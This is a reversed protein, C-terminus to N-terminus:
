AKATSVRVGLRQLLSPPTQRSPAADLTRLAACAATVLLVCHHTLPQSQPKRSLVCQPLLQSDLCGDASPGFTPSLCQPLSSTLAGAARHAAPARNVAPSPATSAEGRQQGHGDGNATLEQVAAALLQGCRAVGSDLEAREEVVGMAGLAEPDFQAAAGGELSRRATEERPPAQVMFQLQKRAPDGAGPGGPRVAAVGGGPGELDCSASNQTLSGERGEDFSASCPVPATPAESVDSAACSAAEAPRGRTGPPLQEASEVAGRRRLKRLSNLEKARRDKHSEKSAREKTEQSVRQSELERPDRRQWRGDRDLVFLHARAQLFERPTLAACDGTCRSLLRGIVGYIERKTMPFFGLSEWVASEVQDVNRRTDGEVLFWIEAGSEDIRESQLIRAGGCAGAMLVDRAKKRHMQQKKKMVECLTVFTACGVRRLFKVVLVLQKRAPDGADPGGPRVAAVGGGPGELDRSAINQTLSGERGEDFSASCPVPATPAESVDSAACSAAEAPRGRTGPLLQKTSEVAERRRLKRLSRKSPENAPRDKHSQKSPREKMRQSELERPDRRQWRGDRDLVFLHARAQLFERPTLAACDGKCRSLLRRIVGKIERRTMPFFGLSEWVASEVQDVDWLADDEVLFWANDDSEDNRESQSIRGGGCAGAMLVDRAKKRPMQQKERMVKCLTVFTACGVRKLFEVVPWLQECDGVSEAMNGTHDDAGPGEPRVAAVGGGPGELDRSAISQALSGEGEGEGDDDEVEDESDFTASCPVPATTDVDEFLQALLELLAEPSVVAPLAPHPVHARLASSASIHM